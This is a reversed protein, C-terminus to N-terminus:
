LRTGVDSGSPFSRFPELVVTPDRSGGTNTFSVASSRLEISGAESDASGAVSLRRLLHGAGLGRHPRQQMYHGVYVRLVRDLHRRGHILVHDLCESRVTHPDFVGMM